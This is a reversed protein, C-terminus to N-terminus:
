HSVVLVYVNHYKTLYYNPLIIIVIMTEERIRNYYAPLQAKIKLREKIEELANLRWKM